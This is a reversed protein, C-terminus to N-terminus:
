RETFYRKIEERVIARVAADLSGGQAARPAPTANSTKAGAQKAASRISYVFSPTITIGAKKGAAVVDAAPTNTPQDRVWQSKNISPKKSTAM